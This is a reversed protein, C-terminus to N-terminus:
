THSGAIMVTPMKSQQVLTHVSTSSGDTRFLPINPVLNGTHLPCAAVINHRLWHASQKVEEDGPFLAPASRLLDLGEDLDHTFGFERCVQQQLKVTIRSKWDFDDPREAYRSQTEDSLRVEEERRLMQLLLERVNARTSEM